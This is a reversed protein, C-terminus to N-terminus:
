ILMQNRKNYLTKCGFHLSCFVALCTVTCQAIILAIQYLIDTTPITGSLIQGTMMGPSSIIGMGIM